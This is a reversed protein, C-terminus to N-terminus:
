MAKLGAKCMPHLQLGGGKKEKRKKIYAFEPTATYPPCGPPM